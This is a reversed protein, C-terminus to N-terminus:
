ARSFPLVDGAQLAPGLARRASNTPVVFSTEGAPERLIQMSTQFEPIEHFVRHCGNGVAEALAVAHSEAHRDLLDSSCM